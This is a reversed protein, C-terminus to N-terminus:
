RAEEIECIAKALRIDDARCGDCIHRVTPWQGPQVWAAFGPPLAGDILAEAHGCRDCQILGDREGNYLVHYITV